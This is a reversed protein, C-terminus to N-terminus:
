ESIITADIGMLLQGLMLVMTMLVLKVGHLYDDVVGETPEAAQQMQSGDGNKEAVSVAIVFPEQQDNISVERIQVRPSKKEEFLSMKHETTM